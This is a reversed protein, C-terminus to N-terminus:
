TYTKEVNEVQLYGVLLINFNYAKQHAIVEVNQMYYKSVNPQPNDSLQCLEFYEYRLM